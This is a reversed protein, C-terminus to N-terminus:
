NKIYEKLGHEELIQVTSKVAIGERIINYTGPQSLDIVTSAARQEDIGSGLEGGDFVSGLKDWLNRFENVNLTSKESSKNASTLAVPFDCLKTVNQIFPYDPIRIGIKLIGQNLYPNDLYWSKNLVITVPGPLLMHLLDDNLHNAVGYHRLSPIDPVCIAVPKTENRGKIDYLRQIAIPNNANCALGYVTDTPLAIVENSVLLKAAFHISDSRNVQVVNNYSGSQLQMTNNFMKFQSNSSYKKIEKFKQIIKLLLNSSM